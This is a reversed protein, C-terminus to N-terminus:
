SSRRDRLRSFRQLRGACSPCTSPKEHRIIYMRCTSCVYTTREQFLRRLYRFM